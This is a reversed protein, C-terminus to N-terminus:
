YWTFSFSNQIQFIEDKWGTRGLDLTNIRNNKKSNVRKPYIPKYKAKVDLRLLQVGGSLLIHKTLSSIIIHLCKIELYLLYLLIELYIIGSPNVKVEIETDPLVSGMNSSEFVEKVIYGGSHILGISRPTFTVKIPTGDDSRYMLAVAASMSGNFTPM